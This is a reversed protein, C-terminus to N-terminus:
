ILLRGRGYDVSVKIGKMGNHEPLNAVDIKIDQDAFQEGYWVEDVGTGGDAFDNGLDALFKDNRAGLYVTDNGKGASVEDETGYTGGLVREKTGSGFDALRDAYIYDNGDGSFIYEKDVSELSLQDRGVIIGSGSKHRADITDANPSYQLNNGQGAYYFDMQNGNTYSYGDLMFEPSGGKLYNYKGMYSLEKVEGLSSMVENSFETASIRDVSDTFYNEHSNQYPIEHFPNLLTGSIDRTQLVNHSLEHAIVREASFQHLVGDKGMYLKIDHSTAIHGTSHDYDDGGVIDGIGLEMGRIDSALLQWSNKFDYLGTYAQTGTGLSGIAFQATSEGEKVMASFLSRGQVNAEHIRNLASIVLDQFETGPLYSSVNNFEVIFRNTPDIANADYRILLGERIIENTM